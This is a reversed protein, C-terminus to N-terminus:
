IRAAHRLASADTLTLQHPEVPEVRQAVLDRVAADRRDREVLGVGAVRQRHLEQVVQDRREHERALRAPKEASTGSTCLCKPVSRNGSRNRNIPSNPLGVSHAALPWTSAPASPIASAQSRITARSPASNPVGSILTPVKGNMSM